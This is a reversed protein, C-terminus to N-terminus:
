LPNVGSVLVYLRLDFKLDDILLPKSLYRQAVYSEQGIKEVRKWQKTLLIGKGQAMADPKLIWPM